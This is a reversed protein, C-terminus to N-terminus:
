EDNIMLCSTEISSHFKDNDQACYHQVVMEQHTIISFRIFQIHMASYLRVPSETSPHAM